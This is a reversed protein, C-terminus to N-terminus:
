KKLRFHIFNFSGNNNIIVKEKSVIYQNKKFLDILHFKTRKYTFYVDKDHPGFSLNKKINQVLQQFNYFIFYFTDYIFINLPTINNINFLSPTIVYCNSIGSQLSKQLINSIEVDSFIYDM